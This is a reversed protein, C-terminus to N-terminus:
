ERPYNASIEQLHNSWITQNSVYAGVEILTRRLTKASNADCSYIITFTTIYNSDKGNAKSIYCDSANM